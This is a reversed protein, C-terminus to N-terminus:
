VTLSIANPFGGLLWEETVEATLNQKGQRRQTYELPSVTESTQRDTKRAM